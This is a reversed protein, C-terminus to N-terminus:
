LNVNHNLDALERSTNTGGQIHYEGFAEESRIDVLLFESPIDNQKQLCGYDPIVCM